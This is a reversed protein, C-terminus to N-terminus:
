GKVGYAATSKEKLESETFLIIERLMRVSEIPFFGIATEGSLMVADTGDLIANAVDSVEARTPRPLATMSELMQTATIVTKGKRNCRHIINKQVMPIQWMPLSVGLDGRAVMIGDCADIIEDVHDIGQQDEIKAIIRCEPLHPKVLKMIQAIDNANRVFSQAMYEVKNRIGLKIDQKDKATLINAPLKLQPINVGKRSQLIGGQIVQLRLTQHVSELTKFLLMGDNVYVNMGAKITDIAIECELPIADSTQRLGKVMFIEQGEQLMVPARLVGIRIRYGELDQLIGIKVNNRQNVSRIMDMYEQHLQQHGHSCNIRTIDMGEQAMTKLERPGQSSPGITCIIKTQRKM